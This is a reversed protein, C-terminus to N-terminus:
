LVIQCLFGNIPMPGLYSHPEPRLQECSYQNYCTSASTPSCTFPIIQNEPVFYYQTNSPQAGSPVLGFRPVWDNANITRIVKDTGIRETYQDVFNQTAVEPQGYTFLGAVKFETGNQFRRPYDAYYSAALFALAGGSSLGTIYFETNDVQGNDIVRQLESDISPVLDQFISFFGTHVESGSPAEPFVEFPDTGIARADAIIDDRSQTGRFSLITYNLERNTILIFPVGFEDRTGGGIVSFNGLRMPYRSMRNIIDESDCYTLSSAEGFAYIMQKGSLQLTSFSSPLPRVGDFQEDFSRNYMQRVEENSFSIDQDYFDRVAGLLDSICGIPNEDFFQEWQRLQPASYVSLFLYAVAIPVFHTIM